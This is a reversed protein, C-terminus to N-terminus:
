VAGELVLDMLEVDIALVHHMCSGTLATDLECLIQVLMADRYISARALEGRVRVFILGV